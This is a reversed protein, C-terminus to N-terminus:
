FFSVQNEDAQKLCNEIERVLKELSVGGANLNSPNNPNAANSTSNSSTEMETQQQEGSTVSNPSKKLLNQIKNSISYLVFMNPLTFQPLTFVPLVNDIPNNLDATSNIFLEHNSNLIAYIENYNISSNQYLNRISNVYAELSSSM